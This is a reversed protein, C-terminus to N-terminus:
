APTGVPAETRLRTLMQVFVRVLRPDFTRGAEERVFTSVKGIPIARKYARRSTMADFVDAVCALRSVPHQVWGERIFPYGKADFRMHHEFAIIMPLRNSAPMRALLDAGLVPHRRMIRWEDEDLLGPKRLVDLPIAIKGLDHLMGAMALERLIAEPLGIALGLGMSIVAVNVSHYLTYEDYSKLSALRLVLGPETLVQQLIANSYVRLTGVQELTLPSRSRITAEVERLTEISGAYARRAVAEGSQRDVPMPPGIVVHPLRKHAMWTELSEGVGDTLAEFVADIERAELGALFSLSGIGKERQCSDILRRYVLSERPLIRDNAVLVDGVFRYTLRGQAALYSTLGQYVADKTTRTQPHAPLYLSATRVMANLSAFITQVNRGGLESM